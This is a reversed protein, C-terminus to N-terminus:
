KVDVDFSVAEKAPKCSTETCMALSLTGVFSKTGTTDAVFGVEFDLGDKDFRPADKAAHVTKELTVGDPATLTLKAPYDLNVHYGAKPRVLVKAVAREKPKAASREVSWDFTEAALATAAVTFVSAVISLAFLNKM